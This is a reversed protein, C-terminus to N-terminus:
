MWAALIRRRDDRALECTRFAKGAPACLGHALAYKCAPDSEASERPCVARLSESEKVFQNSLSQFAERGGIPNGTFLTGWEDVTGPSFVPRCGAFEFLYKRVVYTPRPSEFLRAGSSSRCDVDNTFYETPPSMGNQYWYFTSVASLCLAGVIPVREWHGSPMYTLLYLAAMPFMVECITMFRHNEIPYGNVDVVLLLITAVILTIGLAVMTGCVQRSRRRLALGVAGVLILVFPGLDTAIAEMGSPGILPLSPGSFGPVRFAVLKLKQVPGGPALSAQFFLNPILVAAAAIGLVLIGRM